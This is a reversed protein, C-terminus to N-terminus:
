GTGGMHELVVAGTSAVALVGIGSYCGVAAIVTASAPWEPRTWPVRRIEAEGAQLTWAVNRLAAFLAIWAFVRVSAEWGAPAGLAAVTWLGAGVAFLTHTWGAAKLGKAGRRKYDNAMWLHAGGVAFCAIGLAHQAALWQEPHGVALLGAALALGGARSKTWREYSTGVSNKEAM